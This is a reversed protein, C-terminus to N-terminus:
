SESLARNALNHSSMREIVLELDEIFDRFASKMIFHTPANECSRRTSSTKQWFSASRPVSARKQAKV